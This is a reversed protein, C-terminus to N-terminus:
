GPAYGPHYPRVEIKGWTAAPCKGALRVASEMDPADIIYYGGLQESTQAYPGDHSRLAGGETWITRAASTPQLASTSVFAGAKELESQYARMMDMFRDMQDKPIAAGAAEDAYLMLLYKM